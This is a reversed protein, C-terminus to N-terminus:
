NFTFSGSNIKRQFENVSIMYYICSGINQVVNHYRIINGLILDIKFENGKKDTISNNVIM